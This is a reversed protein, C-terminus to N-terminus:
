ISPNKNCDVKEPEGKEGFYGLFIYIISKKITQIGLTHKIFLFL